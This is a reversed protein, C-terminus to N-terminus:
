VAQNMMSVPALTYVKADHSTLALPRLVKSVFEVTVPEVPTSDLTVTILYVVGVVNPANGAETVRCRLVRYQDVSRKGVAGTPASHDGQQLGLAELKMAKAVSTRAGVRV